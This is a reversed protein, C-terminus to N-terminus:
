KAMGTKGNRSVFTVNRQTQYIGGNFVVSVTLAVNTQTANPTLGLAALTGAFYGRNLKVTYKSTQAGVVGRQSRIQLKFSNSSGRQSNGRKDLTFGAGVGSVDVAVKKGTPDFGAPVPLTGMFSITDMGIRQFNLRINLKQAVVPQLIDTTAHATGLPTSNPDLPDSGAATEFADSFGDGDSDNGTGVLPALVTVSVTGSVHGGLNDTVTVTATFVGATSYAHTTSSGTGTAGDGFDWAFTLTANGETAVATFTISQGLGAPNPAASPASTFVPAPTVFETVNATVTNTGDSVSVKSVYTGAAAYAHTVPNGTGSTGDGFDWTYTLNLSLDSVAKASFTVPAGATAPNPSAAPQELVRVPLQPGITVTVTQTTTGAANAATISVANYTGAATPFGSFTNGSFTLGPPLNTASFTITGFGTATITYSFFSAVNGSNSAPSTITPPKVLAKLAANADVLGAGTFADPGATAPAGTADTASSKMFSLLQSPPLTPDVELLLAAVSAANPAACSTGQFNKFAATSTDVGDPAALDPCSRLQPAGSLPNGATDFYYPAGNAGIGGQSSFPEPRLNNAIIDSNLMAGVGICRFSTPHGYGSISNIGGSPFSTADLKGRSDSFVLRMVNGRVGQFHNIALFVQKTSGSTNVYDLVELPDGHPAGTTGQITTSKALPATVAATPYVYLDLDAQTGPGLGFSSFPQNWQLVVTLDDGAPVNIPLFGNGTAAWKHFNNGSPPIQGDDSNATVPNYTELDGLPGDNGFASFHPIGATNNTTIAQAIPGDQFYPEDVFGIDDVTVACHGATRLALLNAAMSTQSTGASAFVLPSKPAVDHILEMMAEGEDSGGGPGFDVVQFTAPLDGSSQPVTGSVIANPVSGSVSTSSGKVAGTDTVSDSMVGVIIGNGSVGFNTRALDAHMTSDAANPTSGQQHKRRAGQLHISRVGALQSLADIQSVTAHVSVTNWQPASDIVTAGTARIQALLADTVNADIYIALSEPVTTKALARGHATKVDQAAAADTTTGARVANVAPILRADVKFALPGLERTKANEPPLDAALAVSGTILFSISFIAFLLAIALKLM